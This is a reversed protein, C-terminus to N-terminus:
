KVRRSFGEEFYAVSAAMIEERKHAQYKDAVGIVPIELTRATKISYLSDEFLHMEEPACGFNKAADLFIRPESKGEPYDEGGLVFDFYSLLGVRALCIRALHSPTLTAVAMRTGNARLQALLEPVMPKAVADEEYHRRLVRFVDDPGMAEFRPFKGLSRIYAVGKEFSMRELTEVQKEDLTVSEAEILLENLCSRWYYMTDTLTGDMDFLAYKVPLDLIM